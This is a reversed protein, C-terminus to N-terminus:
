SQEEGAEIRESHWVRRLFAHVFPPIAGSLDGEGTVVAIDSLEPEDERALHGLIARRLEAAPVAARMTKLLALRAGDVIMTWGPEVALTAADLGTEEFLERTVSALMDVRDGVIDSTDPTGGPFYARGANATHGGMVGLLFGGDSGRLAAQAFCNRMTADPFGWDRWALFSAFNTRLFAGSLVGDGLAHRHLLLTPGDFLAPRDRRCAAFHADIEDRREVAFPWPQPSFAFDLREIAIVTQATARASGVAEPAPVASM